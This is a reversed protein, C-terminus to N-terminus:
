SQSLPFLVEDTIPKSPYGANEMLPWGLEPDNYNQAQSFSSEPPIEM